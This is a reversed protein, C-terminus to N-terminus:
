LYNPDFVSAIIHKFNIKIHKINEVDNLNVLMYKVEILSIIAIEHIVHFKLINMFIILM